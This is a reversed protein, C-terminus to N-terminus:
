ARDSKDRFAVGEYIEGVTLSLGISELTLTRGIDTVDERFWIGDEQLRYCTIHPRDQSILIYERFSLIIKYAAFKDERDHRETTPSLVEVILVPNLLADVGRINEFKAEGCVLSANPYRYPVLSPTKVATDGTFVRCNKGEAKQRFRYFVNGAIQGHAETGGSMCVIDGDWYKYRADGAHELAFYEDLTFFHRPLEPNAAM